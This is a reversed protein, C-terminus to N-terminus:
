RGKRRAREYWGDFDEKALRVAEVRWAAPTIEILRYVEFRDRHELITSVDGPNRLEKELIAAAEPELPRPASSEVNEPPQLVRPLSAEARAKQLMADTSEGSEGSRSLL